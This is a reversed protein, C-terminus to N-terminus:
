ALPLRLEAFISENSTTRGSVEEPISAILQDFATTTETSEFGTETDIADIAKSGKTDSPNSPVPLLSAFTLYSTHGRVESMPKAMPTSTALAALRAAPRSLQQHYSPDFTARAEPTSDTVAATSPHPATADVDRRRKQDGTGLDPDPGDEEEGERKRKRSSRKKDSAAVQQLRRQEKRLEHLKVQEIVTDISVLKPAQHVDHPRILTEYM